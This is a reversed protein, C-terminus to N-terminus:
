TRHRKHHVPRARLKTTRRPKGVATTTTRRAHVTLQVNHLGRVQAKQYSSHQSGMQPMQRLHTTTTHRHRAHRLTSHSSRLAHRCRRHPQYPSDTSSGRHHPVTPRGRDTSVSDSVCYHEDTAPRARKRSHTADGGPQATGGLVPHNQCPMTGSRTLCYQAYLETLQHQTDHGTVKNPGSPPPTTRTAYERPQAEAADQLKTLTPTWEVPQTTRQRSRPLTERQTSSPTNPAPQTARPPSQPLEVDFGALPTLSWPPGVARQDPPSHTPNPAGWRQAEETRRKSAM